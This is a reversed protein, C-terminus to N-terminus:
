DGAQQGKPYRQRYAAIAEEVLDFHVYIMDKWSETPVSTLSGDGAKTWPMVSIKDHLGQAAHLVTILLDREARLPGLMSAQVRDIERLSEIEDAAQRLADPGRCWLGFHSKHNDELHWDDALKRLDTPATM